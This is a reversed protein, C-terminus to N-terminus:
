QFDVVSPSMNVLACSVFVMKDYLTVDESERCHLLDLPVSGCLINYKQRVSGIVREVHIRVHAIQRTSEVDLPSLQAKGRTFAPIKVQAMMSGVTEQIDFGRDALVLDGPLLNNLFGCHETIFKDSTRGGWGNTIYSVTGQPTIGILFKVTNHYKYASWTEARAKLNSPRDIFVEFCDIIVACKNGFYKWFQMPMTKRLDARQPWVVLPTMRVYMVGIVDTIIRSVTSTSVGYVYALFRNSLNIRLRMLTLMMTKFKNMSNKEPLFPSLLGFLIMLLQWNPLGTFFLVKEDNNKFSEQDWKVTTSDVQSRLQLNETRLTQLELQMSDIMDGTISTQTEKSNDDDTDVSEALPNVQSLLLLTDAASYDLKRKTRRQRRSYREAEPSTYEIADTGQDVQKGKKCSTKVQM